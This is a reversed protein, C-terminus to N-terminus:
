SIRRLPTRRPMPEAQMPPPCPIASSSSVAYSRDAHALLVEEVVPVARRVQPLERVRLHQVLGEAVADLARGGHIRRELRLDLNKVQEVLESDRLEVDAKGACARM